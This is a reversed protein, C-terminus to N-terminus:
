GCFTPPWWNWCGKILPDNFKMRLFTVKDRPVAGFIGFFFPVGLVPSKSWIIKQSAIFQTIKLTGATWKWPHLDNPLHNTLWKEPNWPLKWPWSPSKNKFISIQFIIGNERPSPWRRNRFDGPRLSRSIRVCGHCTRVRRLTCRSLPVALPHAHTTPQSYIFLLIGDGGLFHPPPSAWIGWSFFKYM